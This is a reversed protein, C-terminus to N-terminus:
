SKTHTEFKENDESFIYHFDLQDLRLESVKQTEQCRIEKQDM